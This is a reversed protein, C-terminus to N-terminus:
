RMRKSGRAPLSFRGTRAGRLGAPPAEYGNGSTEVADRPYLDPHDFYRRPGAHGPRQAPGRGRRAPPHRLQPAARPADSESFDRGKQWIRGAAELIGAADPVRGAGDRFSLPQRARQAARPPGNELYDAVARIAPTGVPVLRQKNGKGTTRLVGLELNLDGLRLGCLESVRLGTAYLLELM